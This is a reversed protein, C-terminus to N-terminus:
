GGVVTACCALLPCRQSARCEPSDVHPSICESANLHASTVSTCHAVCRVRAKRGDDPRRYEPYCTGQGRSTEAAFKKPYGKECVKVGETSGSPVKMCPANPNLTGCPGHVMCKEVTQRAAPHRSADPLVASVIRDYDAPTRPISDTKLIFLSHIHPLGRKQFEVAYTWAQTRAPPITM